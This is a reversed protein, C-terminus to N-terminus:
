AAERLDLRGDESLGLMLNLNQVAAGSAGKGLNDYIACLVVQRHRESSFVRILMENSGNLAEPDLKTLEAVDSPEAVSIFRSCSYHDSLVEFLHEGQHSKPLLDMHIPIQMLIGQKYRGIAPLFIPRTVLDSHVRMEEIHKHELQLAYASFPTTTYNPDLPDEYQQILSKGAGSYGSTACVVAAFDTPVVGARILPALMAVAGTPYCGPNSIRSALRLSDEQMSTLEPFGYTWGDSTRHASSADLVRVQPNRVMAVAEKAADDPLCLIAVDCSNLAEARRDSNKRDADALSIFEVDTRGALRNRIELGTTGAEGDIFILPKLVFAGLGSTGM